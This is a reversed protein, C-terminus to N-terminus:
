EGEKKEEDGGAEDGHDHDDGDHDHDDTSTTETTGTETSQEACGTNLLPFSGLAVLMLLTGLLSKIKM